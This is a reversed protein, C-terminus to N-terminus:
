SSREEVSIEVRSYCCFQREVIGIFVGRAPNCSCNSIAQARTRLPSNSTTSSRVPFSM